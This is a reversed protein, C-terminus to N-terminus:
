AARKNCWIFCSCFFLFGTRFKYCGASPDGSLQPLHEPASPRSSSGADRVSVQAVHGGPGRQGCDVLSVGLVHTWGEPTSFRIWNLSTPLYTKVNTGPSDAQTWPKWGALCDMQHNRQSAATSLCHTLLHGHTNTPGRHSCRKFVFPKKREKKSFSKRLLPLGINCRRTGKHTETKTGSPCSGSLCTHSTWKGSQQEKLNKESINWSLSLPFVLTHSYFSTM